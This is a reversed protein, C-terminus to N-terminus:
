YTELVHGFQSQVEDHLKIQVVSINPRSISTILSIEPLKRLKQEIKETILVEIREASAGPLQTIASAIRNTIHPDETRPLTSIAAFGSVILLAM